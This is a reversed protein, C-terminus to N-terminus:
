SENRTVCKTWIAVRPNERLCGLSLYVNKVVQSINLEWELSEISTGQRNLIKWNTRFSKFPISLLIQHM